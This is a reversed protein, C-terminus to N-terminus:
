KYFTGASKSTVVSLEKKSNVIIKFKLDAIRLTVLWWQLEGSQGVTIGVYAEWSKKDTLRKKNKGEKHEKVTNHSLLFHSVTCTALDNTYFSIYFPSFGDKDFSKQKGGRSVFIKRTQRGWTSKKSIGKWSECNL